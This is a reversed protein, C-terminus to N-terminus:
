RVGIEKLVRRGQCRIRKRNNWFALAHGREARPFAQATGKKREYM